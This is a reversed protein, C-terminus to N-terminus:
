AGSITSDALGSVRARGCVCAIQIVDAVADCSFSKAKDAHGGVAVAEKVAHSMGKVQGIVTGNLSVQKPVQRGKKM